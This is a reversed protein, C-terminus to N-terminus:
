DEIGQITLSGNVFPGGPDLTAVLADGPNGSLETWNVSVGSDVNSRFVEVANITVYVDGFGANGYSARLNLLKHTVGFTAPMTLVVPTNVGSGAETFTTLLAM